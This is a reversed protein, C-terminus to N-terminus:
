SENRPDDPEDLRLHYDAQLQEARHVHNPETLMAHRIRGTYAAPHSSEGPIADRVDARPLPARSM